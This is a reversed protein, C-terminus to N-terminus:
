YLQSIDQLDTDFNNQLQNTKMQKVDVSTRFGTISGM